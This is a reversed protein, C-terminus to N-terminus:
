LPLFFEHKQSEYEEIKAISGNEGALKMLSSTRPIFQDPVHNMFDKVVAVADRYGNHYVILGTIADASQNQLKKIKKGDISYQILGGVFISVIIASSLIIINRKKTKEM